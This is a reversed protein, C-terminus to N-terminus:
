VNILPLCSLSKIALNWGGDFLSGSSHGPPRIPQPFPSRRRVSGIFGAPYRLLSAEFQILPWSCPAFATSRVLRLGQRSGLRVPGGLLWQGSAVSPSRQQVAAFICGLQSATWHLAAAARGGRGRREGWCNDACATSQIM